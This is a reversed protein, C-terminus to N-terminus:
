QTYMLLERDAWAAALSAYNPNRAVTAKVRYMGDAPRLYRFIVWYSTGSLVGGYYIFSDAIDTQTITIADPPVADATIAPRAAPRSLNALDTIGSRVCVNIRYRETANAIEVVYDNRGLGLEVWSLRVALDFCGERPIRIVYTGKPDDFALKLNPGAYISVRYGNISPTKVGTLFVFTSVDDYEVLKSSAEKVPPTADLLGPIVFLKM